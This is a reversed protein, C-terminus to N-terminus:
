LVPRYIQNLSRPDTNWAMLVECGPLLFRVTLPIGARVATKQFTENDWNGGPHVAFVPNEITGLDYPLTLEASHWLYRSPGSRNVELVIGYVDHIVQLMPLAATVHKWLLGKEGVSDYPFIFQTEPDAESIFESRM